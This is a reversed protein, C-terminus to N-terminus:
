IQKGKLSTLSKYFPSVPEEQEISVRNSSRASSCVTSVIPAPRKVQQMHIRVGM